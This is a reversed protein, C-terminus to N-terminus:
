SADSSPEGMRSGDPNFAYWSGLYPSGVFNSPPRANIKYQGSCRTMKNNEWYKTNCPLTFSDGDERPVSEPPCWSLVNHCVPCNLPYTHTNPRQFGHEWAYRAVSLVKDKKQEGSNNLFLVSTHRGIDSAYLLSTICKKSDMGNVIVKDSYSIMWITIFHGIVRPAGFAFTDTFQFRPSSDALSYSLPLQCKGKSLRKSAM